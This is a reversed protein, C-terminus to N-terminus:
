AALTQINYRKRDLYLCCLFIWTLLTYNQVYQLRISTGFKILPETGEPHKNAVQICILFICNYSVILEILLVNLNHKHFLFWTNQVRGQMLVNQYLGFDLTDTVTLQDGQTKGQINQYSSFRYQANIFGFTKGSKIKESHLLGVLFIKM